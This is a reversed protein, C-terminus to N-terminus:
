REIDEKIENEKILKNFIDYLTKNRNVETEFFPIEYEKCKEQLYRSYKLSFSIRERLENDSMKQTYSFSLKKDEERVNNLIEDINANPFGLCIIQTNDFFNNKVIDDPLLQFGDIIYKKKPYNRRYNQLYTSIFPVLKQSIERVRSKDNISVEPMTNKLAIVLSDLSINHYTSDHEMIINTLTTKGSRPCGIIVIDKKTNDM